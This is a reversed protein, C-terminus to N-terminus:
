LGDLQLLTGHAHFVGLFLRFGFQLDRMRPQGLELCFGFFECCVSAEFLGSVNFFKLPHYPPL